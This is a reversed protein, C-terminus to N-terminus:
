IVKVFILFAFSFNTLNGSFTNINRNMDTTNLVDLGGFLLAIAMLFFINSHKKFSIETQRGMPYCYVYWSIRLYVCTYHNSVFNHISFHSCMYQHPM